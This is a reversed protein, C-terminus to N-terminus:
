DPCNCDQYKLDEPVFETAVSASDRMEVLFAAKNVDIYYVRPNTRTSSKSFVVEGERIAAKMESLQFGYCELECQAKPTVAINKSNIERIVSPGPLWDSCGRGQFFIFCLVLGVMFGVIYRILRQQFTM